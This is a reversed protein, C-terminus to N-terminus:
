ITFGRWNELTFNSPRAEGGIEVASRACPDLYLDKNSLIYQHYYGEKGPPPEIRALYLDWIDRM